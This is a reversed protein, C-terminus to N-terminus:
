SNPPQRKVPTSNSRNRSDQKGDSQGESKTQSRPRRRRRNSPKGKSSDGPSSASKETRANKTHDQKNAETAGKASGKAGTPSERNKVQRPTSEAGRHYSDRVSDSPKEEYREAGPKKPLPSPPTKPADGKFDDRNKQRQIQGQTNKAGKAGDVVTKEQKKPASETAENQRPGKAKRGRGGRRTAKQRPAEEPTVSAAAPEQRQNRTQPQKDVTRAIAELKEDSTVVSSPSARDETSFNESTVASRDKTLPATNNQAKSVNEEIKDQDMVMIEEDKKNSENESVTLCTEEKVPSKTDGLPPVVDSQEQINLHGIPNLESIAEPGSCDSQLESTANGEWLSKVKSLKSLLKHEEPTKAVKM